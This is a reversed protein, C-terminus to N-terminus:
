KLVQVKANASPAEKELSPLPYTKRRRKLLATRCPFFIPISPGKKACNTSVTITIM